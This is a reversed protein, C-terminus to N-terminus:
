SKCHYDPAMMSDFPLLNWVLDFVHTNVMIKEMLHDLVSLIRNDIDQHVLIQCINECLWQCLDLKILKNLHQAQLLPCLSVLIFHYCDCTLIHLIM